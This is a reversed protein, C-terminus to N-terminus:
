PILPQATSARLVLEGAQLMIRRETDDGNLCGILLAAAVRGMERNPMRVTTLPPYLISAFESDHIGIVSIEGPVLIGNEHLVRMAGAATLLTAAFIATPLPGGRNIIEGTAAVAGEASYGATVVLREDLAIGRDALADRYGQLRAYTNSGGARGALHAIRRHGLDLLHDTAMRAARYSDHIIAGGIGEVRRNVMVIPVNVGNLDSLLDADSDFSAVLLGDVRNSDVLRSFIQRDLHSARHSILLSYGHEACVAEAGEIVEAFVPNDLQPVALGITNSRALRLGRALANPRYDLDKVAEFIRNRTEARVRQSREGRLVRSVTSVDVGAARAVDALTAAM